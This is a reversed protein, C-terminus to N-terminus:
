ALVEELPMYDFVRHLNGGPSCDVITGGHEEVAAKLITANEIIPPNLFGTNRVDKPSYCHGGNSLEVGLMYFERYGMWAALQVMSLPATRATPIAHFTNGFGVVPNQLLSRHRGQLRPIWTWKDDGPDEKWTIFIKTKKKFWDAYHMRWLVGISYYTPVFPLDEWLILGNTGFTAEKKLKKLVPIQDLLSAGTGVIFIRGSAINHLHELM